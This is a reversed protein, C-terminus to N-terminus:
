SPPLVVSNFDILVKFRISAIRKAKSDRGEARKHMLRMKTLIFSGFIGFTLAVALCLFATYIRYIISLM